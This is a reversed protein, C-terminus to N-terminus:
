NTLFIIKSCNKERISVDCSTKIREKKGRQQKQDILLFCFFSIVFCTM